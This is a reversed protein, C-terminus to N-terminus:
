RREGAIHSGSLMSESYLTERATRARQAAASPVGSILEELLGGTWESTMAWPHERTFIRLADAFEALLAADKDAEIAQDRLLDYAEAPDHAPMENGTM